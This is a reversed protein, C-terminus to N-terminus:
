SIKTKCNESAIHLCTWLWYLFYTHIYTFNFVWHIQVYLDCVQTDAGSNYPYTHIFPTTKTSFYGKNDCYCQSEKCIWWQILRTYKLVLHSQRICESMNYTTSIAMYINNPNQLYVVWLDAQGVLAPHISNSLWLTSTIYSDNHTVIEVREAYELVM